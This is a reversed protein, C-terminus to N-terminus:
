SYITKRRKKASGLFFHEASDGSYSLLSEFPDQAAPAERTRITQEQAPTERHRPMLGSIAASASTGRLVARMGDGDPEESLVPVVRSVDCECSFAIDDEYGIRKLFVAHDASELSALPSASKWTLHALRASDAMALSPCLKLMADLMMGACLTDDWAPRGIRGACLIGIRSGLSAAHGVAASANRMCAAIVPTGTEAAALLARTGNTTSMVACSHSQAMERTLDAPSNGTDFGQPPIANEEGMLLPTQGAATLTRALQRAANSSATPYLERGGLEFWRTIVTTARLVDVVIWVDAAPLHEGCSLVVDAEINPRERVSRPSGQAAGAGSGGAGETRGAGGPKGPLDRVSPRLM